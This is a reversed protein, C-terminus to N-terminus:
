PMLDLLISDLFLWGELTCAVTDECVTFWKKNNKAYSILKQWLKEPLDAKQVGKKRRLLTIYDDLPSVAEMKHFSHHEAIFDSVSPSFHCRKGDIRSYASPGLGLYDQNNWYSMNHRSEYGPLCYNSIEYHDYGQATLFNHVLLYHDRDIDDCNLTVTGSNVMNSLATGSECSLSYVSVHQLDYKMFQSLNNKLSSLSQGPLNCILDASLNSFIKQAHHLCSHATEASHIRGLFSLEENHLSQIGISLREFGAQKLENLQDASSSFEPNIECSIECDKSLNFSQKIKELLLKLSTPSLFNPTGGGFYVSSIERHSYITGFHEISELLALVYNDHEPTCISYFDCYICKRQCFPIHIYLSLKKM